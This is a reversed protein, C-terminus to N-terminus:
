TARVPTVVAPKDSTAPIPRAADRPKEHDGICRTPGNRMIPMPTSSMNIMMCAHFLTSSLGSKLFLVTTSFAPRASLTHNLKSSGNDKNTIM